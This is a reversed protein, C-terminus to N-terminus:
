DARLLAEFLVLNNIFAGSKPEDLLGLLPRITDYAQQPSSFALNPDLTISIKAIAHAATAQSEMLKPIDDKKADSAEPQTSKPESGTAPQTTYVIKLLGKIAGHQILVPRSQVDTAMGLMMKAAQLRVNDSPCQAM